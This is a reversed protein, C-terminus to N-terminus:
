KEPHDHRDFLTLTHFQVTLMDTVSGDLEKLSRLWVCPRSGAGIFALNSLCTSTYPFPNIKLHQGGSLHLVRTEFGM